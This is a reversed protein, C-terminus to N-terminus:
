LELTKRVIVLAQELNYKPKVVVFREALQDGRNLEILLQADERTFREACLINKTLLGSYHVYRVGSERNIAIVFEKM